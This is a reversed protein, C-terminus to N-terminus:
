KQRVPSRPARGALREWTGQGTWVKERRSRGQLYLAGLIIGLGLLETPFRESSGWTFALGLLALASYLVGRYAADRYGPMGTRMFIRADRFWLFFVVATGFGAVYVLYSM